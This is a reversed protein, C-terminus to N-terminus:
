SFSTCINWIWWLIETIIGLSPIFDDLEDFLTALASIEDCDYGLIEALMKVKKEQNINLQAICITLLITEALTEALFESEIAGSTQDIGSNQYAHLSVSLMGVIFLSLITVTFLKMFPNNKVNLFNM